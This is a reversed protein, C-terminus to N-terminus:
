CSAACQEAVDAARAVGDEVRWALEHPLRALVWAALARPAQWAAASAQRGAVYWRM